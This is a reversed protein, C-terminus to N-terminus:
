SAMNLLLSVPMTVAESEILSVLNGLTPPM